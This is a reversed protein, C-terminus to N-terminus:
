RRRKEPPHLAREQAMPNTNMEGAIVKMLAQIEWPEFRPDDFAPHGGM